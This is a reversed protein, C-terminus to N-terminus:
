GAATLAQHAIAWERQWPHGSAIQVTVRRVSVRVQAGIKHLKLRITGATARALREWNVPLASRGRTEDIRAAM